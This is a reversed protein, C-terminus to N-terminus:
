IRAWQQGLPKHVGGGPGGAPPLLLMVMPRLSVMGIGELMAAATLGM